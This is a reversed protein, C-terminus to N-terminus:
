VTRTVLTEFLARLDPRRYDTGDAASAVAKVTEDGWGLLTDGINFIECNGVFGGLKIQAYAAIPCRQDDCSRIMRGIKVFKVGHDNLCKVMEEPTVMKPPATMM